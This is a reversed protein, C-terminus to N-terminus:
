KGKGCWDPYSRDARAEPEPALGPRLKKTYQGIVSLDDRETEFSLRGDKEFFTWTAISSRSLPVPTSRQILLQSRVKGDELFLTGCTLTTPSEWTGNEKIVILVNAVTTSSSKIFFSGEWEGVIQAVDSISLDKAEARVVAPLPVLAVEEVATATSPQHAPARWLLGVSRSAFGAASSSSTGVYEIRLTRRDEAMVYTAVGGNSFPGLHLVGDLGITGSTRFFGPSTGPSAGWSYVVDARYTSATFEIREVVLTHAVDNARIGLSTQFTDWRGAWVGSFAAVFQPISASPTQIFLTPLPTNIQGHTVCGTLLVTAGIALAFVWGRRRTTRGMSEKTPM